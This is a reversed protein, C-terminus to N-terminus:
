SKETGIRMFVCTVRNGAAMEEYDFRDSFRRVLHLGLGGPAIDTLPRDLRRAPAQTVDFPSANDEYVLVLRDPFLDMRLAAILDGDPRVGHMHTNMLLEEICLDLAFVLREPLSVGSVSAGVWDAATRVAGPVAPFVARWSREPGM